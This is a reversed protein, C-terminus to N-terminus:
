YISFHSLLSLRSLDHYDEYTQKRKLIKLSFLNDFISSFDNWSWNQSKKKYSSHQKTSKSEIWKMILNNAFSINVEYNSKNRNLLRAPFSNCYMAGLKGYMQIQSQNKHTFM